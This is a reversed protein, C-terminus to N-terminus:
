FTVIAVNKTGSGGHIANVAGTYVIGGIELNMSARPPILTSPAATTATGGLSIWVSTDSSNNIYGGRRTSDSALIQADSTTVGGTAETVSSVRGGHTQLGDTSNGRVRDWNNGDEDYYFGWAAIKSMATLTSLDDASVAQLTPLKGNIATTDTAITSTSTNITILNSSQEEVVRISGTSSAQFPVYDGEDGLPALVSKQVGLPMVGVDGSSHATDEAKGLDTAGTGPTTSLVDVQVHDDADTRIYGSNAKTGDTSGPLVYFESNGSYDLLTGNQDILIAPVFNIGLASVLDLSEYDNTSINRGTIAAKVVQASRDSTIEDGVRHISTLINNRHLITQIRLDATGTAGNTYVVRFYQACIPFQFRRTTSETIDLFFNYQDDWNTNDQSFQFSMGPDASSVDSHLTIAVSNYGECDTGTGTFVGSVGLQAVTSNNSDIDSGDATVSHGAALQNGAITDLKTEIEDVHGIITTQNAATAGGSSTVTGQVHMPNASNGIPDEGGLTPDVLKVRQYDVTGVEDTAVTYDDNTDGDFTTKQNTVTKNDAM